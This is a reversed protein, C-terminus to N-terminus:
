VHNSNNKLLIPPKNILGHDFSREAAVRAGRLARTHQQGIIM